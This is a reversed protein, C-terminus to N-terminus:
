EKLRKNRHRDRDGERQGERERQCGGREGETEGREGRERMSELGRDIHRFIKRKSM